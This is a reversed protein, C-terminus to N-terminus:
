MMAFPVIIEVLPHSGEEPEGGGGGESPSVLQSMIRLIKMLFASLKILNETRYDLCLIRQFSVLYLIEVGDSLPAIKFHFVHISM